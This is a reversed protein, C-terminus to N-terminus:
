AAKADVGTALPLTITAIAGGGHRQRLQLQANSGFASHLRARINALGVGGGWTEKLGGGNDAVELLLKGSEAYAIIGIHGGSSLPGVGHIVANEVLTALMMPPVIADKLTKPVNVDFTLRSEMRIKQVSLYALALALERELTPRSERMEPLSSTLYRSLHRLMSRGSSRDIQYLRRVSALTNFLFHPEIQAQMVQLRAEANERKVDERGLTERHLAAAAEADRKFFYYCGAATTSFALFRVGAGAFVGWRQVPDSLLGFRMFGKPYLWAISAAYLIAGLIQGVIVAACLSLVRAKGRRPGRNEVAIVAFLVPVFALFIHIFGKALGEVGVPMWPFRSPGSFISPFAGSVAAIAPGQYLAVFEVVLCFVGFSKWTIGKFTLALWAQAAAAYTAFARWPALNSYRRGGANDRRLPSAALDNSRPDNM